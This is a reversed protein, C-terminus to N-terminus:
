VGAMASLAAAQNEVGRAAEVREGRGLNRPAEVGEHRLRDRRQGSLSVGGDPDHLGVAPHQVRDAKRIRADVGEDFAVERAEELEAHRDPDGDAPERGVLVRLEARAEVARLDVHELQVEGARVDLARDLVRGLDDRSRARGRRLREVRLEGRRDRVDSRL